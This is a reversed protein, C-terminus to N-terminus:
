MKMAEIYIEGEDCVGYNLTFVLFYKSETKFENPHLNYFTFFKDYFVPITITAITLM